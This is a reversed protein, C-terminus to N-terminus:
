KKRDSPWLLEDTSLAGGGSIVLFLCCCLLTFPYEWGGVRASFGSTWHIKFIAVGMIFALVVAAYRTFLGLLVLGGGIVESIALVYGWLEAPHFGSRMAGQIAANISDRASEPGVVGLKDFGHYLFVSGVAVRLLIPAANTWPSTLKGIM